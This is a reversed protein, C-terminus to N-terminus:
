ETSHNLKKKIAKLILWVFPTILVTYVTCPIYFSYLTQVSDDLGKVVIFFLWYLLSYFIIAICSSLMNTIFIDRAIYTVFAATLFCVLALYIFNFGLHVSSSADWMMGGLMGIFGARICDEGVSLIIATPIIIFCRAGGIEPLLGSVNQLLDALLLLVAYTIYKTAKQSKTLEGM